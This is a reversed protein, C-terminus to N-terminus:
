RKRSSDPLPVVKKSHAGVIPNNGNSRAPPAPLPEVRTADVDRAAQRVRNQTAVAGEKPSSKQAIGVMAVTPVSGIDDFRDAEEDVTRPLDAPDYPTHSVGTARTDRSLARPAAPARSPPTSSGQQSAREAPPQRSVTDALRMSRLQQPPRDAGATVADPGAFLHAMQHAVHSSQAVLGYRVAIADLARQFAAADPPRKHRDRDLASRILAELEAPVALSPPLHPVTGRFMAQVFEATSQGGFLAQGTLIEYLLIGINYLDSRVDLDQGMLQEPSMYGLKGKTIGAQTKVNSEQVKAVGFDTLKVQGDFCVFVNHPSIDRHVLRLVRGERDRAETSVYTVARLVERAVQIAFWVPLSKGSRQAQEILESVDKGELFEMVIFYRDRDGHALDYVRVINPHVLCAAVRSEEFFMRRIEPDRTFEPLIGKVAYHYEAGDAGRGRARYVEAMGGQAHLNIIELGAIVDDLTVIVRSPYLNVVGPTTFECGEPAFLGYM